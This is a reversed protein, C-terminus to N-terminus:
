FLKKYNESLKFRENLGNSGGNIRKTLGIVDDRDAFSNCKNAKWFWCASLMANPEQELLEPNNIFDIRLDKSLLTYNARGTIQKFGRGIFKFGDGIQNNGLNRKGFEGGYILNAIMEQNAPQTITRGYLRANQESIRHRGFTKLLGQVSYNLSEKLIKFDNSEHHIQAFFHALRLPTDIQYAKLMTQYKKQLEKAKM